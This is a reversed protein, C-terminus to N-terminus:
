QYWYSKINNKELDIVFNKKILLFYELDKLIKFLVARHEFEDRSAPLDDQRYHEYLKDLSELLGKANNLEHFRDSTEELFEAIPISQKLLVPIQNINLTIDKLVEVQHKRMELYSILYRTDALLTNGADDYAKGLLDELLEDLCTFDIKIENTKDKLALAMTSITNRMEDELMRQKEFIQKKYNPMILNIIIGIGMGIALIMVENLIMPLDFREEVLFHTMLVANISIGDKLDFLHSLGVFILIFGGFVFPNYGLFSFLVFSIAMAMLFSIFRKAAIKITEKKTDQVSLLTVIGASPSYLLGLGEAIIISIASGIAVKM